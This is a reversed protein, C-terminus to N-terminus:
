KLVRVIDEIGDLIVAIIVVSGAFKWWTSFIFEVVEM